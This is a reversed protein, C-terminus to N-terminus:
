SSREPTIEAFARFADVVTELWIVVIRTGVESAADFGVRGDKQRAPFQRGLTKRAIYPKGLPSHTHVNRFRPRMGFEEAQWQSLPELGGSLQKGSTAANLTIRDSGVTVRAGKTIIAADLSRTARSALAARWVPNVRTRAEKNIDLRLSREAGRIALLAAQLEPSQRVDLM